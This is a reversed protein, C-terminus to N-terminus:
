SYFQTRDRFSTAYIRTIPLVFNPMISDSFVFVDGLVKLIIPPFFNLTLTKKKFLKPIACVARAVSDENFKEYYIM